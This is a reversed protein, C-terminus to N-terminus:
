SHLRREAPFSATPLSWRTAAASTSARIPAPARSPPHRRREPMTSKISLSVASLTAKESCGGVGVTCRRERAMGASAECIGEGSVECASARLREGLVPCSCLPPVTLEGAGALRSELSEILASETM